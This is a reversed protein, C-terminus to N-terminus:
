VTLSEEDPSQVSHDDTKESNDNLAVVIWRVAVGIAEAAVKVVTTVIAAAEGQKIRRPCAPLTSVKLNVGNPSHILRLINIM